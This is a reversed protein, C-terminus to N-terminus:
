SNKRNRNRKKSRSNRKRIVAVAVVGAGAAVALIVWLAINTTDGTKVKGPDKSSEKAPEKPKELEGIAQALEKLVQKMQEETATKDAYVEKAKELVTQFKKFSEATYNESKLGEAAQIANGLEERVNEVAKVKIDVTTRLGKYIVAVSKDNENLATGLAPEFTFESANKENYEVSEVKGDSYILELVLGKPAFGEGAKYQVKDPSKKVKVSDLTPVAAGEVRIQIDAAKEGKYAVTVTQNGKVLATELSPTFTFDKKTDEGYTVTKTTGNNYTLTLNLGEPDFTEGETYDKKVSTVDAAINTVKVEIVTITLEAKKGGYTVTVKQSGETNLVDDASPDFTFDGKAAEDYLINATNGNNYTLMLELGSPDFKEGVYYSTKAPQASISIGTLEPAPLVIRFEKSITGTYKGIGMFTVKATGEATNNEYYRIYDTGNVLVKGDADKVVLQDEEFMAPHAANVYDVHLENPMEVTVTDEAFNEQAMRVRMEAASMHADNGSDAYTHVGVVRVAKAYVPAEFEILKWSSDARDWTGNAGPVQVWEETEADGAIYEVRYETVAGNTGGSTRPLFRIGDIMAAENLELGIWRKDLNQGESTNWNTHWHTQANGDLVYSAPGENGSGPYQSGAIATLNDTPYDRSDDEPGSAEEAGLYVTFMKRTKHDESEIMIRIEDNYAPLVTVAANDKSLAEVTAAPAPTSYSEGEPETVKAGNITLEALEATANTVFETTYKKLEIETIATCPKYSGGTPTATNTLCFKVYTAGAPDFNYTYPKVRGNETGITEVAELKTWNTGDPSIYIETTGADPYRMSGTDKAFYIVIEGIPQETDYRFTIEAKNNGEQSYQWNSWATPNAGGSTNDSITTSGDKIADLTDSQKDEPIDQSLYAAGSVSDGISIEGNQVRVSASVAIDKGFVNAKGTVSVTGEKDYATDEPLTWEVPFAATLITGDPMIAQRTEPLVPKTGVPIVTSYNLLGGIEDIMNVNLTVTYKGDVTGQVAFSGPQNIQEDTIGEWAVAKEETTGDSYRAEISQPLQPMNGTKVYYTKAMYFGDVVKGTVGEVPTTDIEVTAPELGDASVTVTVKGVNKQSQVIGVLQGSFARRNDAKYSDHDPSSGNDVGVLVGAGEVDFTVRNEADPVINGEADLVDVTLYSLDKGDASIATRDARVSLKAAEGTTKVETRGKLEAEPIVQGNEDYAVASLTGEEYPVWFTAYLDQHGSGGKVQHYSHGAATTVTEFEKTGVLNDNLYLEVKAADTYVVVEVNGSSDKMIGNENWTPLVHLTNVDDNWQSQYLYYSDKPLGATDIIGFYSSKPSTWAGQAGSGTGNWPTPEGIYDFGTWVYEGAVFDRTVVDYWAASALAGWGVASKDYSTLQKSEHRGGTGKHYYVGRSNISSATESGYLNWEPYQSHLSDYSSGGSYNTGSVGKNVTNNTLNNAVALQQWDGNKVSNSGVTLPRTTDVENAWEILELSKEPYGTGGAGEQIENGLSWMIISPANQGRQITAKEDFEAWTMGSEAGIITNDAEIQTNFWKAYDQSNGNKAYMWGDFFEDIVLIGKENCIEILEDAAPNHTVRISNCGMEQLLEVQREIARRYAAAGLAGQDHHLCVGKLKVNKGNLSFGTETDFAFYRFGYETDYTDVIQDEVKVETRVTYLAPNEVSWLVPSSAPLVAEIKAEAGAAVEQEAATVTGISTETGKEYITHTLVVNKDEASDNAVTTKVNMNVTGGAEAELDPTEIKTGYLDMHVPDTVTLEVSRYIGSGSYWRSSPTKHEVKVAITNEEGFKVYDTIDYSFPTYGYPHTGLKEGNVWVTSNMYVGGFDIRLRKGELDSEAVFSKRYWGTGGPLYGSEAEMSQSYEQEISYDHPLSVQRWKSDDYGAAQADSADGYYFKWNSDFNRSREGSSGYSNLYVVEPTSSMQTQSDANVTVPQGEFASVPMVAGQMTLMAALAAAGVRSISKRKKM